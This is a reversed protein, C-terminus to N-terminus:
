SKEYLCKRMAIRPAFAFGQEAEDAITRRLETRQAEPEFAQFGIRAYFPANWPVDQYTTLTLFACGLSRAWAEGEFIMRRALGQRQHRPDVDIELLHGDGDLPEFLAFAAPVGGATEAVFSAGYAIVWEHEAPERVPGTACFDYGITLFKQAARREVSMM